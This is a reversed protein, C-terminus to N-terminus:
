SVRRMVAAFFGDAPEREPWVEVHDGIVFPAAWGPPADMAFDTRAALFGAVVHQTEEPELTCASYVLRGGPKVLRAVGAILGEQRTGNRAIDAETLRWRIDPNRGLTGLGTCPADLLVADFRESHFPPREADGGVCVVNEAGWRALLAGMASLRQRSIELAVVRSSPQLDALLGSKGGPAACADLVRGDVAAL